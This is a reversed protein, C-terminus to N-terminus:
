TSRRWAPTADKPGTPGAVTIGCNSCAHEVGSMYVHRMIPYRTHDCLLQKIAKVEDVIASGAVRDKDNGTRVLQAAISTLAALHESMEIDKRRVRCGCGEAEDHGCESCIYTM